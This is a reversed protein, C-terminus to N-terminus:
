ELLRLQELLLLTIMGTAGWIIENEFPEFFPLWRPPDEPSHRYPAMHHHSPDALWALPVRFCRAVEILNLRLPYPWDLLGVFPTIYFNTNTEISPLCGLVRIDAPAVGIEEYTERLAAARPTEGPELSGGPFSVQGSHHALKETRRTFLLNWVGSDSVLPLLVAAPLRTANSPLDVQQLLIQSLQDPFLHFDPSSSDGVICSVEAIAAFLAANIM